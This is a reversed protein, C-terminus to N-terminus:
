ATPARPPPLGRCQVQRCRGLPRPRATATAVLAAPREVAAGGLSREERARLIDCRVAVPERGISGCGDAPLGAAVLLLFLVVASCFGLLRPPAGLPQPSRENM